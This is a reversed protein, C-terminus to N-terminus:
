LVQLLNTQRWQDVNICYAALKDSEGRPRYDLTPRRKMGLKTMLQHSAVNGTAARSVIASAKLQEFGHEMVASAAEFAFGQRWASERVRWGIEIQGRFPCDRERIVLLGCFGLFTKPRALELAWFTMNDREEANIFYGVERAIAGESQVGGLWRMVPSTNCAEAYRYVDSIRWSRLRLRATRIPAM